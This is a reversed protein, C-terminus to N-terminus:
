TKKLCEYLTGGLIKSIERRNYGREILGKTVKPYHSVDTFEHPTYTIGDFDSGLGVHDIGVLKVIYDIHDFLVSLPPIIDKLENSYKEQLFIAIAPSSWKLKVLSDIEPRHRTDFPKLRKAHNSDM